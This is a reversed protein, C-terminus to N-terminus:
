SPAVDDTVGERVTMPAPDLRGIPDAACAGRIEGENAALVADIAEAEKSTGILVDLNRDKLHVAGEVFRYGDVGRPIESRTEDIRAEYRDFSGAVVDVDVSWILEGLLDGRKNRGERWSRRM